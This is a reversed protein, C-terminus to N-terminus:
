ALLIEGHQEPFKRTSERFFEYVKKWFPFYKLKEKRLRSIEISIDNAGEHPCARYNKM